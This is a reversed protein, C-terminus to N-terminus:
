EPRIMRDSGGIDTLQHMRGAHLFPHEEDKQEMVNVVTAHVNRIPVPDDISRLSVEDTQAGTAGGHVNGHDDWSDRGLQVGYM